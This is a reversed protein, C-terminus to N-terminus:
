ESTAVAMSEGRLAAQRRVLVLVSLEERFLIVPPDSKIEELSKQEIRATELSSSLAEMSITFGSAPMAQEVVATFRQEGADKSDPWRVDTVKVERILATGGDKDTDVKAEFWFTGFIPDRGDKFEISMAARGNLVNGNLSEPQPQYM